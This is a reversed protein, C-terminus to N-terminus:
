DLIALEGKGKTAMELEGQMLRRAHVARRHKREAIMGGSKLATIKQEAELLKKDYEDEPMEGRGNNVLVRHDKLAVDLELRNALVVERAKQAEDAACQERHRALEIVANARNYLAARLINECVDREGLLINMKSVLNELAKADLNDAMLAALVGESEAKSIKHRESFIAVKMEAKAIDDELKKETKNAM